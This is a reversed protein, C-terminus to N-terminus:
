VTDFTEADAHCSYRPLVIDKPLIDLVAAIYRSRQVSAALMFLHLMSRCSSANDDDHKYVVIDHSYFKGRILMSRLSAFLSFRQLKQLLFKDSM